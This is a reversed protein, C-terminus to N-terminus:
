LGQSVEPAWLLAINDASYCSLQYPASGASGQAVLSRQKRLQEHLVLQSIEGGSASLLKFFRASTRSITIWVMECDGKAIWLRFCTYGYTRNAEQILGLHSRRTFSLLATGQM